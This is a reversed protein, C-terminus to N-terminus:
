FGTPKYKQLFGVIAAVTGLKKAKATISEANRTRLYHILDRQQKTMEGPSCLYAMVAERSKADLAEVDDPYVPIFAAQLHGGETSVISRLPRPGNPVDGLINL